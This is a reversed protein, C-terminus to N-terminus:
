DSQKSCRKAYDARLDALVGWSNGCCALKVDGGKVEARGKGAETHLTVRDDLVLELLEAGLCGHVDDGDLAGRLSAGHELALGTHAPQGGAALGGAGAHEALVGGQPPTAVHAGAAAHALM